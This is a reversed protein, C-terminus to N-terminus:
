VIMPELEELEEKQAPLNRKEASLHKKDFAITRKWLAVEVPNPFTTSLSQLAHDLLQMQGTQSLGQLASLRLTKHYGRLYTKARRHIMHSSPELQVIKVNQPLNSSLSSLHRSDVFVEATKNNIISILLPPHNSITNVLTKWAVTPAMLAKKTFTTTLVVSVVNDVRKEVPVQKQLLYELKQQNTATQLDKKL